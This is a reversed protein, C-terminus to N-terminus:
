KLLFFNCETQKKKNPKTKQKQEQWYCVKEEQQRAETFSFVQSSTNIKVKKGGLTLNLFFTETM